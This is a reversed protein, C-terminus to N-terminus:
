SLVGAAKKYIEITKAAMSELNFNREIAKRGRTGLERTRGPDSLLSLLTNVHSGANDPNYIVGGGTKSIIEPFAGTKPQVVPVGSALAEILYFGFATGRQKPVSLVSISNLFKIYSQPRFDFYFETDELLGCDLLKKKLKKILHKKYETYIIYQLNLCCRLFIIPSFLM